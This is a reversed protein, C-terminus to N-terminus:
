AEGRLHGPTGHDLPLALEPAFGMEHDAAAEPERREGPRLVRGEGLGQLVERCCVGAWRKVGWSTRRLNQEGKEAQNPTGTPDSVVRPEDPVQESVTEEHLAATPIGRPRDDDDGIEDGDGGLARLVM